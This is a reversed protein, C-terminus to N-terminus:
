KDVIELAEFITCIPTRNTPITTTYPKKPPSNITIAFHISMPTNKM